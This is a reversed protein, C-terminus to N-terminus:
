VELPLGDRKTSGLEATYNGKSDISVNQTELWLPAGGEQDKYIAFTIGTVGSGPKGHGDMVHGSYSVLRPVIVSTPVSEQAFLGACLLTAMALAPLINISLKMGKDGNTNRYFQEANM